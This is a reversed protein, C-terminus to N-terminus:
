LPILRAGRSELAFKEVETVVEDANVTAKNFVDLLTGFLLTFLPFIVGNAAACLLAIVYMLGDWKDAFRFLKKYPVAKRAERKKKGGAPPAAVTPDSKAAAPSAPTPVPDSDPVQIRVQEAASTQNSKEVNAAATPAPNSVQVPDEAGSKQPEM